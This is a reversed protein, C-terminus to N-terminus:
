AEEKAIDALVASPQRGETDALNEIDEPWHRRARSTTLADYTPHGWGFSSYPDSEDTWRLTWGTRIMYAHVQERGIRATAPVRDYVTVEHKDSM